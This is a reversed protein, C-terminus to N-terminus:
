AAETASEKVSTTADDKLHSDNTVEEMAKCFRSALEDAIRVMDAALLIIEGNWREQSREECAFKFGVLKTETKGPSVRHHPEVKRADGHAVADRLNKILREVTHGGFKASAVSREFLVPNSPFPGESILIRWPDDSISEASLGNWVGAAAHAEKSNEKTVDSRLRQTSWCLIATFLAYVATVEYKPHQENLMERFRQVIAFEVHENRIEM